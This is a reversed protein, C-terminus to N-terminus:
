SFLLLNLLLVPIFYIMFAMVSLLIILMVIRMGSTGCMANEM